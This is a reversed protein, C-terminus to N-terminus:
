DWRARFRVGFERPAEYVTLPVQGADTRIHSIVEENTVNTAFLEVDYKESASTYRVNLNFKTSADQVDSFLNSEGSTALSPLTSGGAQATASAAATVPTIQSAASVGDLNENTLHHESRYYANITPVITAGSDLNFTHSYTLNLVLDPSSKPENGSINVGRVCPNTTRVDCGQVSDLPYEGLEADIVSLFGSLRDNDSISWDFEVELGTVDVGEVNITTFEAFNFFVQTPEDVFTIGPVNDNPNIDPDVSGNGAAVQAQDYTLNNTNAILTGPNAPDPIQTPVVNGCGTATESVTFGDVDVITDPFSPAFFEGDFNLDCWQDGFDKIFSEQKDDYDMNFLTAAVTLSGDLFTGKFGIETTINEEQLVPFRESILTRPNTIVTDFTGSKHGSAVSVYVFYDDTLQWNAGIRFDEYDDDKANTVDQFQCESSNVPVGGVVPPRGPLNRPDPPIFGTTVDADPNGLIQQFNTPTISGIACAGNGFFGGNNNAREEDTARFGAFLQIADTLDFQFDAYIADSEAVIDPQDFLKYGFTPFDVGFTRDTHEEFQFYGFTWQFPSDTNSVLNIEHSESQNDWPSDFFVLQINAGGDLDQITSQTFSSIGATYKLTAFDEFDYEAISRVNRIRLQSRAPDSAVTSWVSSNLQEIQEETYDAARANGNAGAADLGRCPMRDCDAHLPAGPAGDRFEEYTLHWSFSDNPQFLGSIRFAENDRSGASGPGAFLPDGFEARYDEKIVTSGNNGGRLAEDDRIFTYPSDREQKVYNVRLAFTDDVPLNVMTRLAFGNENSVEYEASAAFGEFDPKATVVNIAGVSANRGNLTGQPGRSVEIRDVDYIMQLTAQPRATYVGDVNFAVNPEGTEIFTSNGIGRLNIEVSGQGDTGTDRIQLGPVLQNLNSIDTINAVNLQDQSVATIAIPTELLNTARKTATVVVEELEAAQASGVSLMATSLGVAFSVLKNKM